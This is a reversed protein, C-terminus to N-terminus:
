WAICFAFMLGLCGILCGIFCDITHTVSRREFSGPTLSTPEPFKPAAPASRAQTPARYGRTAEELTFGFRQMYAAGREAAAAAENPTCGNAVTRRLLAHTIHLAHYADMVRTTEHTQPKCFRGAGPSPASRRHEVLGAAARAMSGIYHCLSPEGDRAASCRAQENGYALWAVHVRHTGHVHRHARRPRV